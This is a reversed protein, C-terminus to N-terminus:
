CQKNNRVLRSATIYERPLRVILYQDESFLTATYKKGWDAYDSDVTSHLLLKNVNTKVIRIGGFWLIQRPARICLGKSSFISTNIKVVPIYSDTEM